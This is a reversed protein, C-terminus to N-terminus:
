AKSGCQGVLRLRSVAIASTASAPAFELSPQLQTYHLHQPSIALQPTQPVQPQPQGRHCRPTSPQHQSRHKQTALLTHTRGTRDYCAAYITEARIRYGETRLDASIVHPSWRMPQREHVKAALERDVVLEAQKPHRARLDTRRQAVSAVYDGNNCRKRKLERSITSVARRLHQAIQKADVGATPFAEIHASEDFSLRAAM